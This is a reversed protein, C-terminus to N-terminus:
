AIAVGEPPYGQRLAFEGNNVGLIVVPQDLIFPVDAFTDVGKVSNPRQRVSFLFLSFIHTHVVKDQVEGIAQATVMDVMIAEVISLGVEAGCGVGLVDPM